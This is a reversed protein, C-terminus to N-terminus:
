HHNEELAAALHEILINESRDLDMRVRSQGVDLNTWYM